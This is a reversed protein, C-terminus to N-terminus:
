NPKQLIYLYQSDYQCKVMDIQAVLIFGLDKAISLIFAQSPMYLEHNNQRVNGTEKDKFTEKLIANTTNPIIEFNAKYDMTDFKVETSTIRKKAYKQPSVINFPDGAPIIPDFNDKDVLHLILYGGPMLWDFCNKLFKRKNKIYYITFYLCTIHTFSNPSFTMSKLVDGVIYTNDPYMEKALEVMAASKDIGTVKFGNEAFADVHHGTGSGVDLLISTENPETKNIITGVEFDNKIKSFVLDDYIEGYFNDYIDTGRKVIFEKTEEFGEVRICKFFTNNIIIAIIILFVVLFVREWLSLKNFLKLLSFQRKAM